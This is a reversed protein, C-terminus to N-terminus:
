SRLLEENLWSRALSSGVDFVKVRRQSTQGQKISYLHAISNARGTGLGPAKQNTCIAEAEAGILM